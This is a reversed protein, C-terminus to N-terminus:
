LKKGIAEELKQLVVGEYKFLEPDGYIRPRSINVRIICYIRGPRPTMIAIRDALYVAESISHTVFIVTKKDKEWIKLLESQMYRRTIEDLAGFPEDMLLIDPDTVLARAISVRTQMGGSLQHPYANEFGEIGVLRVVHSIRDQWENRSITNNAELAFQINKWVTRWPLLLPSQFVISIRRQRNSTPLIDVEGRDYNELGAIINILTSKGCGSPGLLCLFERDYVLLNLDSIVDLRTGDSLMFTKYLDKIKIVQEKKEEKMIIKDAEAM